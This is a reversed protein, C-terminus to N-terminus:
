IAEKVLDETTRCGIEYAGAGAALMPDLSRRQLEAQFAIEVASVARVVQGIHAM